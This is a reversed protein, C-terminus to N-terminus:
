RAQNSHENWQRAAAREIRFIQQLQQKRNLKDKKKIQAEM